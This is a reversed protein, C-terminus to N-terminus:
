PLVSRAKKKQIALGLPQAARPLEHAQEGDKSSSNKKEKTKEM